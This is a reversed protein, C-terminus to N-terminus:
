FEHGEEMDLRIAEDVWCKTIKTGQYKGPNPETTVTIMERMELPLIDYIQEFSVKGSCRGHLIVGHSDLQEEIWNFLIDPMEYVTATKPTLELWRKMVEGALMLLYFSFCKAMMVWNVNISCAGTNATNATFSVIMGVTYAKPAPSLSVIYADSTGSDVAFNYTKSVLNGAIQIGGASDLTLADINGAGNNVGIRLKGKKDDSSGDHSATISALATVEVGSQTGYFLVSSERGGDADSPTANYASLHKGGVTQPGLRELQFHSIFLTNKARKSRRIQVFTADDYHSPDVVHIIRYPRYGATGTYNKKALRTSSSAKYWGSMVELDGAVQNTDKAWFTCLYAGVPLRLHFDASVGTRKGFNIRAGGWRANTQVAVNNLAATDAVIATGNEMLDFKRDDAMVTTVLSLDGEFTEDTTYNLPGRNGFFRVDSGPEKDFWGLVCGAFIHTQLGGVYIPYAPTTGEIFCGLFTTSSARGSINVPRGTGNSDIWSSEVLLLPSDGTICDGGNSVMESNSIFLHSDDQLDICTVPKPTGRFFVREVHNYHAVRAGHIITYNAGDNSTAWQGGEVTVTVSAADTFLTNGGVLTITGAVVTAVTYLGDNLRSGSVRIIDGATFGATVFGNNSDTITDPNSNVFAITNSQLYGANYTAFSNAAGAGAEVRLGVATVGDVYTYGTTELVLWFDTSAAIRAAEDWDFAFTIDEGDANTSIANNAVTGSAGADYVSSAKVALSGPKGGNDDYIYAAITGTPSGTSALKVTVRKIRTTAMTPSTLKIAYRDTPGTESTSFNRSTDTIFSDETDTYERRRLRLGTGVSGDGIDTISVDVLSCHISGPMLVGGGDSTVSAAQIHLNTLQVHGVSQNSDLTDLADNHISIAFGSSGTYKLITTNPSDGSITLGNEGGASWGYPFADIPSSFRYVGSPFQVLGVGGTATIAAEIADHNDTSDDGVAGWWQPYIANCSGAALSVNGAGSFIRYLGAVITGNVTFTKGSDISLIAGPQFVIETGAAITVDNEIRHIGYPVYLTNNTATSAVVMNFADDNEVTPICIILWILLYIGMKMMKMMWTERTQTEYSNKKDFITRLIEDV